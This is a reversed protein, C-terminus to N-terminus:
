TTCNLDGEQYRTRLEIRLEVPVKAATLRALMNYQEAAVTISPIAGPGTARNGLM